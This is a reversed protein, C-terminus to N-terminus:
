RALASLQTPASFDERARESPEEFVGAWLGLRRAWAATEAEVYASGSLRDAVAYGREVLWVALDEGNMRCLAVPRGHRDLGRPECAVAAEGIHRALAEAADAGCPVARGSASECTQRLGPASIGFLGVVAGRVRLTDGDLVAARGALGEGAGAPGGLSLVVPLACALVARRLGEGGPAFPRRM